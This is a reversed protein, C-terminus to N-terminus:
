SVPVTRTLAVARGRYHALEPCRECTDRSMTCVETYPTHSTDIARNTTSATTPSPREL